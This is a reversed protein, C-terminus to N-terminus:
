GSADQSGAAVSARAPQYEPVSHPWDGEGNRSRVGASAGAYLGVELREVLESAVALCDDRQEGHLVGHTNRADLHHRRFEHEPLDFRNQFVDRRSGGLGAREPRGPHDLRNGLTAAEKEKGRTTSGTITLLCPRGSSGSSATRAM